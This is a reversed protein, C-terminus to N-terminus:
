LYISFFQVIRFTMQCLASHVLSRIWRPYRRYVKMFSNAIQSVSSRLKIWRMCNFYAVDIIQNNNTPIRKMCNVRIRKALIIRELDLCIYPWSYNFQKYLRLNEQKDIWVHNTKDFNCLSKSHLCTVKSNQKIYFWRFVWVNHLEVTLLNIDTFSHARTFKEQISLQINFHNMFSRFVNEFFSIM